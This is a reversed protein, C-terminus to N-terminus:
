EFESVAAKLQELAQKLDAIIDEADELVKDLFEEAPLPESEGGEKMTESLRLECGLVEAESGDKNEITYMDDYVDFGEEPGSIVTWGDTWEDYEPDKWMVKDGVQFTRDEKTQEKRSALYDDDDITKWFESGDDSEGVEMGVIDNMSVWDSDRRENTNKKMTNDVEKSNCHTTNGECYPNVFNVIDKVKNAIEGIHQVAFDFDKLMDDEDAKPAEEYGDELVVENDSSAEKDGSKMIEAMLADVKETFEVERDKPLNGSTKGLVEFFARWWNYMTKKVDPNEDDSACLVKDFCETPPIEMTQGLSNLADMLKLQFDRPTDELADFM